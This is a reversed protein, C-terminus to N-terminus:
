DLFVVSTCSRCSIVNVKPRPPCASVRLSVSGWWVRM